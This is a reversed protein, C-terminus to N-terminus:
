PHFASVPGGEPQIETSNHPLTGSDYLFSGEMCALIFNIDDLVGAQMTLDVEESTPARLTPSTRPNAIRFSANFNM